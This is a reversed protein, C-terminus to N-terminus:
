QLRGEWVGAPSPASANFPLSHAGCFCLVARLAFDLDLYRCRFDATLSLRQNLLILLNRANRAEPASMHRRRDNALPKGFFDFGIYHFRQNRAIKAPLRLPQPDMRHRLRSHSVQMHMVALRHLEFRRKFNQRLDLQLAVFFQPRIFRLNDYGIGIYVLRQAIQPLLMCLKLRDFPPRQHIPIKRLGRQIPM